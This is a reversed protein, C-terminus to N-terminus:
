ASTRESIRRSSNMERLLIEGADFDEDDEEGPEAARSRSSRGSRRSGQGGAKPNTTGPVEEVDEELADPDYTDQLSSACFSNLFEKL